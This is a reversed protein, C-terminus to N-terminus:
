PFRGVEPIKGLVLSTGQFFTCLLSYFICSFYVFLFVFLNQCLSCYFGVVLFCIDFSPEGYGETAREAREMVGLLYTLCLVGNKSSGAWVM